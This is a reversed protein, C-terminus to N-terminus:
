VSGHERRKTVLVSAVFGAIVAGLVLWPLNSSLFSPSTIVEPITTTITISPGSNSWNAAKDGAEVKFTYTTGASLNTVKYSHTTGNVTALLRGNQYIQYATVGVSDTALTWNLALSTSTVESTSVLNGATWTPATLDQLDGLYRAITFGQSSRITALIKGDAQLAISNLWCEKTGLYTVALGNSGFSSDAGGDANYRAITCEYQDLARHVAGGAMVIKGDPQLAAVNASPSSFQAQPTTLVIGSSGFSRDPSGDSMYRALAFSNGSRGVVVFKGDTQLVLPNSSSVTYSLLSNDIQTRLIGTQSGQSFAPDPTGNTMYRVLTVHGDIGGAAVIKGDPQVTVGNAAGQSGLYTNVLGTTSTGFSRDLTGDSHYRALVFVGNRGGAVVISGDTQVAVSYAQAGNSATNVVGFQGFARDPFGNSDYRELAFEGTPFTTNYGAVIIKGDAQLAISEAYNDGIGIQRIVLGNGGFTEDLGGSTTYRALAFANSNYASNFSFGAVLIKGDPQVAVSNAGSICFVATPNCGSRVETVVIGGGNFTTDLFGPDAHVRVPAGQCFLSFVTFLLIAVIPRARYAGVGSGRIRTKQMLMRRFDLTPM